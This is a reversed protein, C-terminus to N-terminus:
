YSGALKRNLSYVEKPPATLRNKMMVPMLKYVKKTMEQNGFDFEGYESFPMGVTIVSEIHADVM